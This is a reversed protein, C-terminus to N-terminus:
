STAAPHSEAVVQPRVAAGSEARRLSRAGLRGVLAAGIGCGTMVWYAPSAGASDIIVGAVPTAVAIGVAIGSTTWAMAETLRDSPVMREVLAALSILVPSCAIGAVFLGAAVLWVSGLFPMPATVVALALLAVLLQVRLPARITRAGFVLGSLLSAVAYLALIVGAAGPTGAEKAFAVTVVEMAGFIGGMLVQVVVLTAMGPLAIAPRGRLGGRGSARAPAPETRTQAVLVLTGIVLLVTAVLVAASPFLSLALLTALPPGLIFVAEDILSEWAFATRLRTGDTRLMASWRARVLPGIVPQGAGAIAALLYIPWTLATTMVLVVMGVVAPVHVALQIPVVRRQGRLDILRSLQPGIIATALAYIASVTGAVAYSGREASVLLVAGLGVMSMQIRAVSGALSFRWAGPLRLVRAYVGFVAM